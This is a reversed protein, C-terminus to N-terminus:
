KEKFCNFRDLTENREAAHDVMPTPYDPHLPEEAPKRLRKPDVEELEPVWRRIYEGRPDFRETQTWPNQIRFYPAADAGTGASWQWGGNNNAIEGDLLHRLFHAEGHRWHIHLDKTLFMATIMRVRNHMYGTRELQRMGADVIPFGTRGQQWREFRDDADPDDWPLGRWKENFDTEIVEPYHGLIAIFFERWALQKQFSFISRREGQKSTQGMLRTSEAYVQRPSITGWRLHPGLGSTANAAPDNRRDAYATLIGEEISQKLQDHAAREGARPLDLGPDDLDWHALTPLDLSRLKALREGGELRKVRPLVEEKEQDMWTRSFPTYVRYPSGDNTLVEDPEHMVADKCTIFDIGISRCVERLRDEQERGFPDPDRNCTVADAECERILAELEEVADGSRLILRSGVADLNKALSELCGCLFLQRGPGTWHHRKKWTSLIYVPVVEEGSRSAQHLATNDSLRLDRRFWHIVRRYQKAMHLTVIPPIVRSTRPPM